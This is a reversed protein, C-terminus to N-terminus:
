RYKLFLIGVLMILIYLGLTIFVKLFSNHHQLLKEHYNLGYKKKIKRIKLKDVAICLENSFSAYIIRNIFIYVIIMIIGLSQLYGALFVCLNFLFFDMIGLIFGLLFNNRYSFYFPGLLLPMYYNDNRCIKEFDSDFLKIDQNRDRPEELSVTNGNFMYGCKLCCGDLVESHCKPCKIM